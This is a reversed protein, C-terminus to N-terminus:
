SATRGGQRDFVYQRIVLRHDAVARTIDMTTVIGLLVGGEMVLVRHVGLRRMADAAVEVAADPPLAHLERDMVESVTHEALLDWESTRVAAFRESTEAGADSWLETFFTGPPEDETEWERPEEEFDGWELQDERERPVPPTSAQFDLLNTMSVVGVVANGSVVPAGGLHRGALADVADRLSDEAGLTLVERTMIDRLKLM